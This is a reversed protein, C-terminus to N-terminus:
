SVHMKLLLIEDSCLRGCESGSQSCLHAPTPLRSGSCMVNGALVLGGDKGIVGGEVTGWLTLHKQDRGERGQFADCGRGEQESKYRLVFGLIQCM